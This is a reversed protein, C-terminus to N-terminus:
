IFGESVYYVWTNILSKDYWLVLLIMLNNGFVYTTAIMTTNISNIGFGTGCSRLEKINKKYILIFAVLIDFWDRDVM